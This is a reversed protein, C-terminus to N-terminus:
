RAASRRPFDGHTLSDKHLLVSRAAKAKRATSSIIHFTRDEDLTIESSPAIISRHEFLSCSQNLYKLIDQATGTLKLTHAM